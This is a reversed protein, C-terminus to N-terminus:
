KLVGDGGLHNQLNWKMGDKSKAIYRPMQLYISQTKEKGDKMKELIDQLRYSPDKYKKGTWIKTKSIYIAPHFIGDVRCAGGTDWLLSWRKATGKTTNVIICRSSESYIKITCFPEGIAFNPYSKFSCKCRFEKTKQM